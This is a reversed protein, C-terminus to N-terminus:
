EVELAKHVQSSISQLTTELLKVRERLEVNERQTDEYLQAAKEADLTKQMLEARLREIEQLAEEYKTDLGHMQGIGRLREILGKGM